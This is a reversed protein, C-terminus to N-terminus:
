TETYFKITCYIEMLESIGQSLAEYKTNGACMGLSTNIRTLLRLDYYFPENKYNFYPTGLIKKNTILNVIYEEYQKYIGKYFNKIFLPQSQYSMEKAEPYKGKEIIKQSMFPNM